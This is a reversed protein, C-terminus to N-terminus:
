VDPDFLLRRLVEGAEHVNMNPSISEGAFVQLQQAQAVLNSARIPNVHAEAIMEEIIEEGSSAGLVQFTKLQMAKMVIELDSKSLTPMRDATWAYNAMTDLDTRGSQGAGEERREWEDLFDRGKQTLQVRLQEIHLSIHNSDSM